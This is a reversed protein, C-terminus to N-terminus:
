KMLLFGASGGSLEWSHQSLGTGSCKSIHGIRLLEHFLGRHWLAGRRWHPLVNGRQLPLPSFVMGPVCTLIECSLLCPLTHLRAFLMLETVEPSLSLHRDRRNWMGESSLSELSCLSIGTRFCLTCLVLLLCCVSETLMQEVLAFCAEVRRPEPSSSTAFLCTPGAEVNHGLIYNLGLHFSLHLVSKSAGEGNAPPSALATPGDRTSSSLFRLAVSVLPRSGGGKRLGFYFTNGLKCILTARLILKIVLM